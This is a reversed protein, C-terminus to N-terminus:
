GICIILLLGHGLVFLALERASYSLPESLLIAATQLQFIQYLLGMEGLRLLLWYVPTEPIVHPVFLYPEATATIPCIARSMPTALVLYRFPTRWRRPSVM